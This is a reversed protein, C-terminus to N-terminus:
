ETHYYLESLNNLREHEARRKLVKPNTEKVIMKETETEPEILLPLTPLPAFPNATSLDSLTSSDSISCTMASVHGLTESESQNSIPAQVAVPPKFVTLPPPPPPPLSSSPCPPLQTLSPRKLPEYDAYSPNSSAVTSALEQAIRNSLHTQTQPKKKQRKSKAMLHEMEDDSYELECESPEEDFINSADSGKSRRLSPLDVHLSKAPM